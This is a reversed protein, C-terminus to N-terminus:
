PLPKGQALYLEYWEERTMMFETAKCSDILHKPSTTGLIVQMHAPHRLLWNIAIAAKDCNYKKALRELVTNLAKYDKHNIFTGEAWSAQIPSWAQITIDNLRCYDLVSGDRDQINKDITNMFIGTDFIGAHIISAQIQNFVLPFKVYKQLLAIQAASYNSVGFYKVLGKDFLENFAEAIEEPDGLADPRHILLVDIYNTNLRKLSEEVSELIHEKSSDYMKGPIIGCKTQIIMQSRLDPNRKIVEGFLEESKGRGYIDAHDFFNIGQNLAEKILAEVEDVSKSAIRMCGLVLESVNLDTNKIPYTKMKNGKTFVTLEITGKNKSINKWDM